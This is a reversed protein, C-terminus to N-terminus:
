LETFHYKGREWYAFDGCFCFVSRCVEKEAIKGVPSIHVKM